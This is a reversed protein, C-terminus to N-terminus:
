PLHYMTKMNAEVTKNTKIVIKINIWLTNCQSIILISPYKFFDKYQKCFCMSILVLAQYLSREWIASVPGM